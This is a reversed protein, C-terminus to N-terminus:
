HQDADEAGDDSRGWQLGDTDCRIKAWTRADEAGDDSRGWQLKGVGNGAVVCTITKRETMPAAGNFSRPPRRSPRNSGTKRETMPAAGNFCSCSRIGGGETDEDEAGDDSRGWQLENPPPGCYPAAITKRETMPAAGNFCCASERLTRCDSTKRETMPAAGNFSDRGDDDDDDPRGTKRETMPAAGNFSSGPARVARLARRDEAGDDSRGWQLLLARPMWRAISALTKRETM